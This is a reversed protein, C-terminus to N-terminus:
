TIRTKVAERIINTIQVLVETPGLADVSTFFINRLDILIWAHEPNLEAQRGIPGEGFRGLLKEGDQSAWRCAKDCAENQSIGSHGPSHHGKLDINRKLLALMQWLTKAQVETADARTWNQEQWKEL